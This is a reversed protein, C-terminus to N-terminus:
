IYKNMHVYIKLSIDFKRERRVFNTKYKIKKNKIKQDNQIRMNETLCQLELM